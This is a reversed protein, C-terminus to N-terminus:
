IAVGGGGGGGWVCVCVKEFRPWGGGGCKKNGQKKAQIHSRALDLTSNQQLNSVSSMTKALVRIQYCTCLCVCSVCTDISRGM